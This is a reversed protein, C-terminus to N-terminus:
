WKYVEPLTKPTDQRSYRQILADFSPSTEVRPNFPAFDWLYGLTRLMSSAAYSASQGDSNTGKQEVYGKQVWPSILWTPMRGGLRDFQFTYNAGSPTKATYTLDDPRAALPPPIHDHFGGTEDFTILLASQKWQPSARLAEYTDKILQEGDSVLGQPHMSTTGVGCCSPGIVSFEPLQGAAADSAFNALPQVLKTNGSTYTWNFWLADEESSDTVYNKWTHNTESLEQFISRQMMSGYAFNNAGHGASTGSHLAVRNPNTPGPIDSHWHNFTVFNQTLATLVSVQEETYYNMVQQALFTHNAEKAMYSRIEEHAFCEINNGYIAHDPDDIVSDYDSAQSCAYGAKPNTLNLPNCFPGNNIPNDLGRTRQGGLLNDLSRNEMVLVVVNKIKDKMNQVSSRSGAGNGGHPGWGWQPAADVAATLALLGVLTNSHM